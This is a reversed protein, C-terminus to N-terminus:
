DPLFTYLIFRERDNRILQLSVGPLEKGDIICNGLIRSFSYLFDVFQCGTLLSDTLVPLFTIRVPLFPMANQAMGNRTGKGPSGKYELGGSNALGGVLGFYPQRDKTIISSQLDIRRATYVICETYVQLGSVRQMGLIGRVQRQTEKFVARM